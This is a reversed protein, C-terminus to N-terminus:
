KITEGRILKYSSPVNYSIRLDNNIVVKKYHLNATLSNKGAVSKIDVDEPFNKVGEFSGTKYTINLNRKNKVDNILCNSVIFNNKSIKILNNILDKNTRNITIVENDDSYNFEKSFATKLDKVNPFVFFRNTLMSEFSNYDVALKMKKSFIDYKAKTVQKKLREILFVSDRTCILRAAEIGFGPSLSIWIVSDKIIKLNGKLSMSSKDTKFKTSFKASLTKFDFENHMISDYLREATMGSVVVAAKKHKLTKCSFFVTSFLVIIIFFSISNKM